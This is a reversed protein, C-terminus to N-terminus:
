IQQRWLRKNHIIGCFSWKWCDGSKTVSRLIIYGSSYEVLNGRIIM